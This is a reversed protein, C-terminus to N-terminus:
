YINYMSLTYGPVRKRLLGIFVTIEYGWQPFNIEHAVLDPLLDLALFRFLDHVLEQLDVPLDVYIAEAWRYIIFHGGRPKLNRATTLKGYVPRMLSDITTYHMFLARSIHNDPAILAQFEPRELNSWYLYIMTFCGLAHQSSALLSEYALRLYNYFGYHATTQLLPQLKDLAEICGAIVGPPQVSEQGPPLVTTQAIQEQSQLSGFLRSQRGEQFYWNTITSCGRVMTAFDIIGDSVYRAQFTLAYSTALASDMELATFGNSKALITRLANLAKGRHAIALPKYLGLHGQPTTLSCYSAGLSLLAHLLHPCEHSFAPIESSWTSENGFPLGPQADQLFHHWFRLDDGTFPSTSIESCLSPAPSQRPILPRRQDLHRRRSGQSPYICDEGRSICNRCAPKTEQCKVRRSKCNFCGHRSKTHSRKRRPNSPM